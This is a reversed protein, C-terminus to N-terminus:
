ILNTAWAKVLQFTWVGSVGPQVSLGAKLTAGTIDFPTSLSQVILPTAVNQFGSAANRHNQVVVAQVVGSVSAIRVAAEVELFLTDTAATQAVGTATCRAADTITAGTGFRINWTPVGTGAATKTGSLRWRLM